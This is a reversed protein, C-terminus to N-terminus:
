KGTQEQIVTALADVGTFEGVVSTQPFLLKPVAGGGVMGYLKVHREIFQGAIEKNSDRICM